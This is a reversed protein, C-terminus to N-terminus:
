KGKKINIVMKSDNFGEDFCGADLDTKLIGSQLRYYQVRYERYNSDPHLNRLSQIHFDFLKKIKGALNNEAAEV